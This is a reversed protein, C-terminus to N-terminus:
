KKKTLKRAEKKRLRMRLEKREVAANVVDNWWVDKPNKGRRKVKVSGCVARTSDVM